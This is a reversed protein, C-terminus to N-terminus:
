YSLQSIAKKPDTTPLQCAQNYCIYVRTQSYDVRDKLLPLTSDETAGLMVKHPHFFPAIQRRYEEAAKGGIVIEATTFEFFSLAAAWNSLYVPDSSILKQVRDLMKQSLDLYSQRDLMVGLLWLNHTMTSNSSPIVNDFLEKKRAILDDSYSGTYFFLHDEVDYFNEIAFSMLNQARYLWKEHFTVQYLGLYGDITAAYDELFAPTKSGKVVHTRYLQDGSTMHDEIFAACKLALQLFRDESFVAYADTLAKIMLGNWGCIIKHDLGPRIRENRANLLKEHYEELINSLWDTDMNHQRAFSELDQQQYLINQGNEWNGEPTLGYFDILFDGSKGVVESFDHYQWIYFKGEEGESDADLASYFGGQPHLLERSLFDITQYVVTRYRQNQSISYAKAYLSVLQANDYLMKEFHPAFWRSDVSYRAFGGGIQDYLGGQCMKDLTLYLHQLLQQDRKGAYYHIVFNWIVPMPFKPAKQMGGNVEDFAAKLKEIAQDLINAAKGDQDHLQYKTVVGIKLAKHFKEASDELALRNTQYANAVSILLKNWRDPPFYTGGYFPKQDPTLFVNLPWGGSLGMAQIAEMYIQDIDPREERDLKICVFHKNMVEAISKHEFSEREMVHCWHCASYGISLLIPKDESQAKELAARGWPYWDVPNYAHQLLYPSTEHILRNATAKM